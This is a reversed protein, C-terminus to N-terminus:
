GGKEFISRFRYDTLIVSAEGVETKTEGAGGKLVEGELKGKTEQKSPPPVGM